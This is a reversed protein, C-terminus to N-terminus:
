EVKGRLAKKDKPDLLLRVNRIGDFPLLQAEKNGAEIVLVGHGPWIHLSRTDTPKVNWTTQNSGRSTILQVTEKLVVQTVKM